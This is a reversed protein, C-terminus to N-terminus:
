NLQTTQMRAPLPRSTVVPRTTQSYQNPNFPIEEEFALGKVMNILDICDEMADEILETSDESEDMKECTDLVLNISRARMNRGPHPPPQEDPADGRWRDCAYDVDNKFRQKGRISCILGLKLENGDIEPVQPGGIREQVTSIAGDIWKVAHGIPHDWEKVMNLLKHAYPALLTFAVAGGTRKGIRLAKGIKGAKAGQSLTNRVRKAPDCVGPRRGFCSSSSRFEYDPNNVRKWRGTPNKDDIIYVHSISSPPIKGKVVFENKMKVNGDKRYIGPLWHGDPVNNHAIVYVYGGKPSFSFHGTTYGRAVNRSRSVSVFGSEGSYRFHHDLVTDTGKPQFGEKFIVSPPRTDGRYFVGKRNTTSTEMMSADKATTLPPEQRRVRQQEPQESQEPQEPREPQQPRTSNLLFEDLFIDLMPSSLIASDVQVGDITVLDSDPSSSPEGAAQPAALVNLAFLAAFLQVYM